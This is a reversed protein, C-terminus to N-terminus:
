GETGCLFRALDGGNEPLLADLLYGSGQRSFRGCATRIAALNATVLRELPDRLFGPAESLSGATVRIGDATLVDLATGNDAARGYRLARAGCANNGLTGGITARSHTSPDPGFRLGHKAAAASLDDLVVGPEVVATRTDPDISRVHNLHRSFDLVVGPG